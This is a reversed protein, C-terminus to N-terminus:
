AGEKYHILCGYAITDADAVKRGAKIDDLAALVYNKAKAIDDIRASRISDIGGKYLLAGDKGVIYMHPTVRAGYLRGIQGNPDLLVHSPKANRDATLKDAEAGVVHGQEGPASSVISLWVVGQERAAGQVKQMNGSNYHKRVFPCGHNTWELVVVKGKLDALRVKQGKSDVGVFDPAPKGIAPGDALAPAALLALVAAFKLPRLM